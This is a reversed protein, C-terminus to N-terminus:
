TDVIPNNTIKKLVIEFYFESWALKYSDERSDKSQAADQQMKNGLYKKM